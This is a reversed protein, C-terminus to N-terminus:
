VLPMLDKREFMDLEASTSQVKLVFTNSSAEIHTRFGHERYGSNNVNSAALAILLFIPLRPFFTCKGTNFLQSCMKAARLEAEFSLEVHQQASTADGACTNGSPVARVILFRQVSHDSMVAFPTPDLCQRVSGLRASCTEPILKFGM